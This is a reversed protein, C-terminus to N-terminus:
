PVKLIRFFRHPMPIEGYGSATGPAGTPVIPNIARAWTLLDESGLVEYLEYPKAQFQLQSLDFSMIRFCSDSDTPDTGLIYEQLNSIGDSDFDAGPARPGSGATTGFYTTMWANPMGDSPASDPQFSLARVSAFASANTVDSHRLYIVDYYSGSSPDVRPSDYFAAPTYIIRNGVLSFETTTSGATEITLDATQLDYGRAEIENIGPVNPAGSSQTVIDMVREYSYPPTNGQPFVQGVVRPDYAGLTAGRGDAHARYYMIAERWDAWPESPNESSHAMSLAHGIEHCLVEAFTAVTQMSAATHKLTVYGAISKPIRQERSQRGFGLCRRASAFHFIETRRQRPGAARSYLWLDHLQLRLKSDNANLNAAAMGFSAVGELHLSSWDRQEM